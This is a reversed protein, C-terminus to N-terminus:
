NPPADPEGSALKAELAELRAKLNENEERALVAMEKVAEFEERKVMDMDRLWKEAQHKCLTDVERRVGQAVGAADNMLRAVEDLFRNTTQTMASDGEPDGAAVAELGLITWQTAGQLLAPEYNRVM